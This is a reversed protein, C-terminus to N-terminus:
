AKILADVDDMLSADTIKANRYVRESLFGKVCTARASHLSRTAALLTKAAKHCDDSALAARVAALQGEIRAIHMILKAHKESKMCRYYCIGGPTHLDVM